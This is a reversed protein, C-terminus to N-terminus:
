EKLDELLKGIDHYGKVKPDRAISEAEQMAAITEANPQRTIEFPISQTRVAQRIFM